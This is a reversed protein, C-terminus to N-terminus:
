ADTAPGLLARLRASLVVDARALDEGYEDLVAAQEAIAAGECVGLEVALRVNEDLHRSLRESSAGAECPEPHRAVPEPTSTVTTM